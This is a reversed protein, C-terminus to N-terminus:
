QYFFYDSQLEATWASSQGDIFCSYQAFCHQLSASHIKTICLIPTFSYTDKKYWKMRDLVRDRNKCAQSPLDTEEEEEKRLFKECGIM